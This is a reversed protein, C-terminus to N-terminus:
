SVLCKVAIREREPNTFTGVCTIRAVKHYCPLLRTSTVLRRWHSRPLDQTAYGAPRCRQGQHRRLRWGQLEGPLHDLKAHWAAPIAALVHWTHLMQLGRIEGDKEKKGM